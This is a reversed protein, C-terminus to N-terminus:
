KVVEIVIPKYLEEVIKKKEKFSQTEVGKVDEFSVTGGNWFIMFDVRYTVSGPLHFPVQRLFQIVEGSKKLLKLETYREAERKSDFRFGDVETPKANYKNKKLNHRIM